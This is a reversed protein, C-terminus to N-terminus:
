EQVEEEFMEFRAITEQTGDYSMILQYAFYQPLCESPCVEIFEQIGGKFTAKFDIMANDVVYKADALDRYCGVIMPRAKDIRCLPGAYITKIVIYNKM